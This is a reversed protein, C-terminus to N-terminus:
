LCAEVAPGIQQIMELATNLVPEVQEWEALGLAEGCQQRIGTITDSVASCNDLTGALNAMDNLIRLTHELKQAMIHVDRSALADSLDLQIIEADLQLIDRPTFSAAPTGTDAIDLACAQVAMRMRHAQQRAETARALMANLDQDQEYGLLNCETRGKQAAIRAAHCYLGAQAVADFEQWSWLLKLLLNVPEQSRVADHLVTDIRNARQQVWLLTERSDYVSEQAFLASSSGLTSLVGFLIIVITKM